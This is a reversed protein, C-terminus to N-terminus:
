GRSDPVAFTRAGVDGSPQHTAFLRWTLVAAIGHSIEHLFVVFVRFPYVIFSSWLALALLAIALVLVLRRTAAKM